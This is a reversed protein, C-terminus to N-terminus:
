GDTPPRRPPLPRAPTDNLLMVALGATFFATILFVSFAQVCGLIRGALTKPAFEQTGAPFLPNTKPRWCSRGSPFLPVGDKQAPAFEQRLFFPILRANACLLEQRFFLPNNTPALLM